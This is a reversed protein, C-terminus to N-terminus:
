PALKVVFYTLEMDPVPPPLPGTGFDLGEGLAVGTLLMGGDPAVAVNFAGEPLSTGFSRSAVVAGAPDLKAAFVDVDSGAIGTVKLSTDGFRLENNFYGGVLTNGDADVAVAAQHDSSENEGFRLSFRHEGAPGFAALFFNNNGVSALPGGGFDVIGQFKGTFVMGNGPGAAVDFGSDTLADGFRLGLVGNGSGDLKALLVDRSDNVSTLPGTGVDIVDSFSGTILTSGQADSAVGTLDASGQLSSPLARAFVTSGGAALKVIYPESGGSASTLVQGGFSVSEAYKGVIIPQGAANVAIRQATDYSPGGYTRGWAPAGDPGLKTVFIDNSQNNSVVLGEGLDIQQDFTGTLFINGMADVAVDVISQDGPGILQRVWLIEGEPDLKLVFGDYGDNPAVTLVNDAALNLYSSFTGALIVNGASDATVAPFEDMPGGVYGRAWLADLPCAQAVGDCDEDEPTKCDDVAPVVEGECAGYGTGEPNCTMTGGRCAGVDETGDPGSYCAETTGPECQTTGTGAGGATGGGFTREEPSCAFFALAASAALLAAGLLRPASRFISRNM